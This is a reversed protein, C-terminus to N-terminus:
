PVRVVIQGAVLSEAGYDFVVRLVYPGSAELGWPAEAEIDLSHGPLLNLPPLSFSAVQGTPGEVSVLGQVDALRADGTNAIRTLVRLPLVSLASLGTVAASEEAPPVTVFFRVLAEGIVHVDASAADDAPSAARVVLGAWYTGRVGTPVHVRVNVTREEFAALSLSVTDADLWAGCSRGIEGVPFLRTVGDPGDDWDSLLLSFAAARPEDNLVIFSAVAESEPNVTLRFEAVSVTLGNGVIACAAFAVAM